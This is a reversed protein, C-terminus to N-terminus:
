TEQVSGQYIHADDVLSGVPLVMVQRHLNSLKCSRAGHLQFEIELGHTWVEQLWMELDLLFGLHVACDARDAEMM